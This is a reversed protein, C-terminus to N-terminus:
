YLPLSSNLEPYLSTPTIISSHDRTRILVHYYTTIRLLVYYHQLLIERDQIQQVPCLGLIPFHSEYPNVM